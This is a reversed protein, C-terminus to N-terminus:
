RAAGVIGEGVVRGKGSAVLQLAHPYLRHEAELERAALSEPTDGNLVPVEAQAVIPGTKGLALM